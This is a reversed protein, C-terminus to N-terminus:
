QYPDAGGWVPDQPLVGTKLFRQIDGMLAEPLAGDEDLVPAQAWHIEPESRLWGLQQKAYRRTQQKMEETAEELTCEGALHALMQRYGLSGLVKPARGYQEFLHRCEQVLGQELMREVRRNIRAYLQERPRILALKLAHYNPLQFRHERQLESLARGTQEWIELGRSIRVLDNPHVREALEPDVAALEAHLAASGQEEARVRHRQRIAEDPPPAEFLGHVVVRLYLGTGGVLMARKGRAHIQAIVERAREEYDGVNHEEPVDVEDILHHPMRERAAPSAKASGIDLERYVQVSDMGVIEADLAAALELSLATKGVGTPGTIALVRPLDALEEQTPAHIEM